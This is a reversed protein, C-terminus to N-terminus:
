QTKSVIRGQHLMTASYHTGRQFFGCKYLLLCILALLLLGTLAAAALIWLPAGSSWKVDQDPFILVDMQLVTVDALPTFADVHPRTPVPAGRAEMASRQSSLRLAAQARVLVSTASSYVQLFTSTWVRSKVTLTASSSVNDLRCTFTVCPHGAACDLTYSNDLPTPSREELSRRKGDLLLKVPNVHEPPRCHSQPTGDLQIEELYLLWRGDSAEIPWKFEVELNTSRNRRLQVQLVFLAPPGVEEATRAESEAALCGRLSILGPGAILSLSAPPPSPASVLVSLQPQGSLTSLRVVCSINGSDLILDPTQFILFLRVEHNRRLTGLKCMVASDETYCTFGAVHGESHVGRYILDEPLSVSLTANPADSSINVELLLQGVLRGLSWRTLRDQHQRVFGARMQLSSESSQHSSFPGQLQVQTRATRPAKSLVPTLGSATQDQSLSVNLSFVVPEEVQLVPSQLGLPLTLCYHSSLTVSGSHENTGDSFCLRPKPSTVDASVIFDLRIIDDSSSLVRSFCVQVQVCSHCSELNVMPPSATLTWNLHVVPRSRLLAVTDDLSGVLLDPYQNQDVDLGAALSYGFTRFRPSVRSGVIVQSPNPSLGTSSGTWIMVQGTGHFPAGVAFDQFGDQNLDGAAVVAMGFGSGSPGKLVLSPQAEFGGGRNLYVYLAGGVEKNPHFYFPAGVLLDRWGDNDLDVTAVANGFYSGTQEGRLTQRVALANGERVALLVSGRADERSDRPAGAVVTVEEQSLLGQAQSVSYGIYINRRNMRRFSSGRTDYEVRPNIWSVHVNGQWEFSGPSGVIIDTQTIEASIGMNCMVEGTVDGLHSCVQAPDQWTMDADDYLLDNGRVYCRGIMHRLQSVGYVKIFRHACALVRGGPPGQSAVSVGLWMDEILDQSLNLDKGILLMRSCDSPEATLPCVFVGGTQNAPLGPEAKQRPAGVLLQYQNRKLNQHLAVSLGFLSQDEGFKVLPFQTDVNSAACACLYACVWVSVCVTTAM